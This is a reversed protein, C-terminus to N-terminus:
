AGDLRDIEAALKALRPGRMEDQGDDIVVAKGGGLQLGAASAKLTMARSLRLADDLADPMGGAYGRIRMGGLAPGLVTSHIAVVAHLGIDRDQVLCVKEHGWSLSENLRTALPIM